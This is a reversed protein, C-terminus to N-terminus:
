YAGVVEKDGTAMVDFVCLDFDESNVHACAIKAEEESADSEALRRRLNSTQPIDCKEPFQPGEVNHFLMGEQPLVQWEQGFINTDELITRGDRAVRDGSGYAGLLGLSTGFREETAGEISVHVFKKFTKLIISANDGLDVIFKYQKSNEKQLSIPYGNILGIIGNDALSKPEKNIWYLNEHTDGMVELTGNGIQLVASSVYSFQKIQRTRVHIDMGFDKQFTPNELLVLDCVGHFDYKM